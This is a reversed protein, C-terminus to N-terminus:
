LLILVNLGWLIASPLFDFEEFILNSSVNIQFTKNCFYCLFHHKYHNQPNCSFAFASCELGLIFYSLLPRMNPTLGNVSLTGIKM